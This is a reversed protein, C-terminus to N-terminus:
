RAVYLIVDQAAPPVPPDRYFLWRGLARGSLGEPRWSTSLRFRQGVYGPLAAHEATAPVIVLPTDPQLGVRSVSRVEVFDRLYWGLLPQLSQDVTVQLRHPDRLRQYSLEEAARVVNRVDPAASTPILLEAPAPGALYAGQAGMHVTLILLVLGGVVAAARVGTWLGWAVGVAVVIVVAGGFALVSPLVETWGTDLYTALGLVAYMLLVLALGITLWAQDPIGEQLAGRRLRDLALGALLILPLAVPAVGAPGRGGPLIHVLCAVLLWCTLFGAFADRRAAFYGVGALGFVLALPEYFALAQLLYSWPHSSGGPAFYGLWAALQDLSAQIGGLHLFFGTSGLFLVGTLLAGAQSLSRRDRRLHAVAAKLDGWLAVGTGRSAVLATLGLFILGALILTYTDPGAMLSLALFLSLLVCFLYNNRTRQEINQVMYGAGAAILGLSALAVLTDSRLTRSAVLLSPSVLLLGAAALAGVRGLQRRLFYPLVVLVAGCLAPVIRAILDNAGLVFFSLATGWFLPPSYGAMSAGQGEAFRWAALALQAEEPQMPQRGLAYFRTVLAALFLVVYLTVEVTLASVWTPLEAVPQVM